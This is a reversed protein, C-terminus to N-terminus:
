ASAHEAPLAVDPGFTRFLPDAHKAWTVAPIPGCILMFYDYPARRDNAMILQYHRRFFNYRLRTGYFEVSLMDRYRVSWVIPNRREGKVRIGIGAIPDFDWFNLVDKRSQADVWTVSPEAALRAFVERLPAARPHLAAGPAISGLTLLVLPPGRRGIEPDLELARTVVAPAIAGGGSHGVVVIEDAANAYMAARLRQAGAEIAADFCSAAGRAFECLYPWHNNIQVIFWRDAVPRLAFFIAFAALVGIVVAAPTPLGFERVAALAILWGGGIALAIWAILMLQFYVLVAAFEWRARLVRLLAGSVLYDFAWALARPIQRQLLPEAMNARIFHEQRLFEYRTSVQWNPAAAEIEWHAFDRSEIQLTGLRASLPWIQLFRRWSREFLRYYGEAGQPDYGEVYIVHRRRILTPEAMDVSSADPAM